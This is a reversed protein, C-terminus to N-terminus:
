CRRGKHQLKTSKITALGPSGRFTELDRRIVRGTEISILLVTLDESPLRGVEETLKRIATLTLIATETQTSSISATM